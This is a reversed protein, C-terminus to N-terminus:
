RFTSVYKKMKNVGEETTVDINRDIVYARAKKLTDGVIKGGKVNLIDMVFNGNVVSEIDGKSELREKLRVVKADLVNWFERDFLYLRSSDDAYAVQYLSDWYPSDIMNYCKSDKMKNFQHMRMHNKISYRVENAVDKPIHIREVIRDFVDLGIFDHRLYHYKQKEEYYKYAVPKGVDHFLGALKVTASKQDLYKLVGMVHVWVNGEPHHQRYHPFGSMCDIEPLIYELVGLNWMNFIADSFRDSEAMKWLEKWIRETAIDSICDGLDHIAVEVESDLEFGLTASFRIARIMRLYDESFRDHAKGVTRIVGKKIDEQGGHYDIINGDEDMAMANITFDRRKSDTEFDKVIVVDDPRRGDSYDGDERYNAIEFAEGEFEVVLIGFDKNNGIDHTPFHKEIIDIDVSTAIDIDDCEKGLIFDRVAGGVIYATSGQELKKIEAVLRFGKDFM